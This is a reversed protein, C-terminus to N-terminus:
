FVQVAKMALRTQTTSANPDGLIVFLDTGRRVAQRYTLYFNTTGGHGFLQNEGESRAVLRGGLGREPTLDYNLSLILQSRVYDEPDSVAPYRIQSHELSLNVGFPPTPRFGQQLFVSRYDGGNRKGYNLRMSGGRHIDRRRWGVGGRWVRDHHPPRDGVSYGLHVWTDPRLDAWGSVSCSSQYLVGSFREQRSLDMWVHFDELPGTEYKNGYELWLNGSKLDKEPVFGM